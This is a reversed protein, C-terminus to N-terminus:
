KKEGLTKVPIEAHDKSLRNQHPSLLTKLRKRGTHLWWKVTSPPQHLERVMETEDMELFHRQVIVARQEPPLQLLADWVSQRLEKAELLQEPGPAPDTLWILMADSPPDLSLERKQRRAAKICDNVVMRLFWPRFPRQSDYQYIKKAAKLFASQVIDDALSRDAVILYAAHVALAQYQVVLAELGSLDGQKLRAIAQLEEM